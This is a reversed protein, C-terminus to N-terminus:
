TQYWIDLYVVATVKTQDIARLIADKSSVLSTETSHWKKNGSQNFALRQKETLYTLQDLTVKECVKSLIPLLSISRNNCAEQHDGEKPIPCVEAIKWVGPFVGSNFSCDFVGGLASSKEEQLDSIAFAPM